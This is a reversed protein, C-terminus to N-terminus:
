RRTVVPRLPSALAVRGSPTLPAVQVSRHVLTRRERPIGKVAHVVVAAPLLPVERREKALQYRTLRVPCSLTSKLQTVGVGALSGAM